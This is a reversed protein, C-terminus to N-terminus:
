AALKLKVSGRAHRPIRYGRTRQAEITVGIRRLAMVTITFVGRAYEPESDPDPWIREIMESQGMLREPKQLLLALLIETQLFTLRTLRGNIRCCGALYEPWTMSVM